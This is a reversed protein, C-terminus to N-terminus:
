AHEDDEWPAPKPPRPRLPRSEPATEHAPPEAPSPPEEVPAPSLPQAAPAPGPVQAYGYPLAPGTQTPVLLYSTPQAAAPGAGYTPTWGPPPIPGPTPPIATTASATAGAVATIPVGSPSAVSTPPATELLARAAARWLAAMGNIVHLGVFFLVIGIPVFVLAEAVTDVHWVQFYFGREEPVIPTGAWDAWNVTLPASVFAAPVSVAVTFIVFSVIGLPFKVFLFALDKWTAACGMHAKTRSWTGQANRWPTPAPALRTGLLGDALHREFAAFAWWLAATLALLPIGIWVILTGISTSLMSVFFSFYFVGLPFSLLLYVINLWTRGRTAVGFFRRLWSPRPAGAAQPAVGPTADAPTTAGPDMTATMQENM